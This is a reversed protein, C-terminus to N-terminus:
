VEAGASLRVFLVVCRHHLRLLSSLLRGLARAACGAAVEVMVTLNGQDNGHEQYTLLFQSAFKGEKMEIKSLESFPLSESGNPRFM